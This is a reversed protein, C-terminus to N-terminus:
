GNFPKWYASELIINWANRSLPRPSDAYIWGEKKRYYTLAIPGSTMDPKGEVLAKHLGIPFYVICLVGEEPLGEKIKNWNKLDSEKIM